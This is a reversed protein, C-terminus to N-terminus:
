GAGGPPALFASPCVERYAPFSHTGTAAVLGNFIANTFVGAAAALVEDFQVADAVRIDGISLAFITDGDIMTHAPRIAIALGDHASGAVRQCQAKTLAADTYVVGITTNLMSRHAVPLAAIEDPSPNQLVGDVDSFLRGTRRDVASGFANRDVLNRPDLLDTDRTGPAGGRADYGAVAGGPCLVVTTGTLWDDDIREHHGVMIGDIM